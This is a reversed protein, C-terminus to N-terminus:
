FGLGVRWNLVNLNKDLRHFRQFNYGVSTLLTARRSGTRFFKAHLEVGAKYNEFDKPGQLAVDHRFPFVLHIFAPNLPLLKDPLGPEEEEDKIRWLLNLNTRYQSNSGRNIEGEVRSTFVTPRITM